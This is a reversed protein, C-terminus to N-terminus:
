KISSKCYFLYSGATIYQIDTSTPFAIVATYLISNIIGTSAVCYIDSCYVIIEDDPKLLKKAKKENDIQISGPIHKAKYHWDSLAMVLKFDHKEDLKKKLEDRTILNMLQPNKNSHTM